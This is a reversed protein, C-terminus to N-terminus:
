GVLVVATSTPRQQILDDAVTGPLHQSRCQLSLDGGINLLEGIVAVLVTPAQHHAIAVVTLPLHQGGRTRHPHGRRPDVIAPHIGIGTLPLPKGRRDQGGPRALGWLHGLHQRQQVQM